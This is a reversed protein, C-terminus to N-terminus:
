SSYPKICGNEEPFDILARTFNLLCSVSRLKVKNSNNMM